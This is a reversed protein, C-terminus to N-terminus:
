EDNHSWLNMFGLFPDRCQESTFTEDKVMETGGDYKFTGLDVLRAMKPRPAEYSVRPIFYNYNYTYITKTWLERMEVYANYFEAEGEVEPEETDMMQLRLVKVSGQTAHGIKSLWQNLFEDTYWENPIRICLSALDTSKGLEIALNDLAKPRLATGSLWQIELRQLHKLVESPMSQIASITTDINDYLLCIVCRRAVIALAENRM